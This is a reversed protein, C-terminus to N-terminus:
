RAYSGKKGAMILCIVSAALAVVLVGAILFIWWPLGTKVVEEQRQIQCVSCTYTIVDDEEQGEDWLHEGEEAKEGCDCEQWHGTEDTLWDPSFEHEHEEALQLDCVECHTKAENMIHAEQKTEEACVECIQWHVEENWLWGDYTHAADTAFGCINCDPDCEDDFEHVAFDLDEDCSTCDHWHGTIDSTWQQSLKHKHDLKKTMVYGCTLCIQDKEETAAPGPYHEKLEDEEGCVTCYHWHGKYSYKWATGFSHEVTREASCVNCTTDCANDYTHKGTPEILETVLVGQCVVCVKCIGGHEGCTPDVTITDAAWTHGSSDRHGCATCTRWHSYEDGEWEGYTHTCPKPTTPDTPVSGQTPATPDSEVPTSEPPKSEESPAPEDTPKSTETPTSGDQLTDEAAAPLMFLQLVVLLVTLLCFFRKIM